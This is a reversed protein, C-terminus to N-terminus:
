GHIGDCPSAAAPRALLAETSAYQKRTDVMVAALTILGAIPVLILEIPLSFSVISFYFETLASVGIVALATRRFFRADRGADDIKFLLPLGSLVYWFM